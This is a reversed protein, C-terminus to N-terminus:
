LQECFSIFKPTWWEKYGTITPHIPDSMYRRYDEKDVSLMDRDNFLDLIYFDYETQLTYLLEILKEYRENKFYAGTYFVIPCGFTNRVYELVFRIAQETKYPEINREPSADNTSLQCVFLDLAINKDIRKLRAVYSSDDIDALTTGSVAEKICNVCCTEGMIDAFSVGGSAFGYTVSSGLFLITKNRLNMRIDGKTIIVYYNGVPM